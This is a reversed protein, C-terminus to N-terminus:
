SGGHASAVVGFQQLRQLYEEKKAIKQMQNQRLKAWGEGLIQQQQELQSIERLAKQLKRIEKEKNLPPVVTAASTDAAAAASKDSATLAELGPPVDAGAKELRFGNKSAQKNCPTWFGDDSEDIPDSVTEPM